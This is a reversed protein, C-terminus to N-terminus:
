ANLQLAAPIDLSKTTPEVTLSVSSDPSDLVSLMADTELPPLAQPHELSVEGYVELELVAADAGLVIELASPTLQQTGSVDDLALMRVPSEFLFVGMPAELVVARTPDFALPFDGQEGRGWSKGWSQGWARGWAGLMLGAGV